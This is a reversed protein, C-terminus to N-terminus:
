ENLYLRFFLMSLIGTFMVFKLISSLQHFEKPEKASILKMLVYSLPSIICSVCYAISWWWKFRVVYVQLIVLVAALVIIWVAAFVKSAPVGWVVPMTKCGNKMDGNLDEIDKIVERILSIVFSFSIYLVAIRVFVNIQGPAIIGKTIYYHFFFVGIVWATLLSILVNGALLTKKLKVSYGFLLLVALLNFLPVWPTRYIWGYYLSFLVGIASLSIHWLIAWRRHIIKDVVLKEPKNILDINIDFYDNIIYGAAAIFLSASILLWLSKEGWIISEPVAALPVVIAYIFLLQTLLIFLINPWRILKLFAAFLNM